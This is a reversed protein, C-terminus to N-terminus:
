HTLIKTKLEQFYPPYEIKNYEECAIDYGYMTLCKEFRAPLLAKAIVEEKLAMTRSIIRARQLDHEEKQKIARRYESTNCHINIETHKLIFQWTLNPNCMVYNWKWPLEPHAEIDEMTIASSRSVAFWNWSKNKYKVLNDINFQEDTHMWDWAVTGGLRELEEYIEWGLPPLLGNRNGLLSDVANDDTRICRLLMVAAETTLKPHSGIKVWDWNLKGITDRVFTWDIDDSNLISDPCFPFVNINDLMFSYPAFSSITRWCWQEHPFDFLIKGNDSEILSRNCSLDTFSWPKMPNQRVMDATVSHNQSFYVWSWPKNYKMIIDLTVFPRISMVTWDWPLNMNNKVIDWTLEEHYSVHSWNWPLSPNELVDTISYNGENSFRDWDWDCDMHEKMLQINSHTFHRWVWQFEHKHAVADEVTIKNNTYSVDEMKWPKGKTAVLIDITLGEHRSLTSYDWDKDPYEKVMNMDLDKRASLVKFNWPKDPLARIIKMPTEETLTIGSWNWISEPTHKINRESLYSIEGMWDKFTLQNM